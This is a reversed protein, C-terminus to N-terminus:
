PKVFPNAFPSEKHCCREYGRCLEDSGLWQMCIGYTHFLLYEKTGDANLRYAGIEDEPLAYVKIVEPTWGGTGWILIVTIGGENNLRAEQVALKATLDKGESLFIDVPVESPM